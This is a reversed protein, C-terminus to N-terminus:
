KSCSGVQKIRHATERVKKTTAEHESTLHQVRNRLLMIDDEADKIDKKNERSLALVAALDLGDFESVDAPNAEVPNNKRRRSSVVSSSSSRTSRVSAADDDPLAPM